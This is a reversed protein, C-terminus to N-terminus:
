RSYCYHGPMTLVLLYLMIIVLRLCSVVCVNYWLTTVLHLLWESCVAHNCCSDAKVFTLRWAVYQEGIGYHFQVILCAIANSCARGSIWYFSFAGHHEIVTTNGYSLASMWPCASNFHLPVDFESGEQCSSSWAPVFWGSGASSPVPCNTQAAALAANKRERREKIKTLVSNKPPPRKASSYQPFIQSGSFIETLVIMLRNTFSSVSEVM